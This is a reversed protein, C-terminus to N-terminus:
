LLFRSSSQSYTLTSQGRNTKEKNYESVVHGTAVIAGGVLGTVAAAKVATKGVDAAKSIAHGGVLAAGAVLAVGMLAEWGNTNNNNGMISQPKATIPHHSPSTLNEFSL